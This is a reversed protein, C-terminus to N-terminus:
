ADHIEEDAQPESSEGHDPDVGQQERAEEQRDPAQEEEQPTPEPQDHM